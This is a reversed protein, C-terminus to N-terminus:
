QAQRTQGLRALTIATEGALYAVDIYDAYGPVEGPKIRDHAQEAAHAAAAAPAPEDLVALARAQLVFLRALIAPSAQGKGAGAQAARLLQLAETPQGQSLTLHATGTLIHAGLLPDGAEQALRLAQTFYRQAMGPLADDWSMWAALYAHEAAASYLDARTQDGHDTHWTCCPCSRPGCTSCSPSGPTAAAM